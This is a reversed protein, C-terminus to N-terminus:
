YRTIVIHHWLLNFQIDIIQKLIVSWGLTTDWQVAELSLRLCFVIRHLGPIGNNHGHKMVNNIPITSM